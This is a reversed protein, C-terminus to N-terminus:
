WLLATNLGCLPLSDILMQSCPLLVLRYPLPASTTTKRSPISSRGPLVKTTLGTVSLKLLSRPRVSTLSELKKPLLLSLDIIRGAVFPGRDNVRVVAKQGSEQNTVKVFVGLPLTKHAATMAYM